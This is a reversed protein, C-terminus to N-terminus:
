ELLGETEEFGVDEDVESEEDLNSFKSFGLPYGNSYRSNYVPSNFDFPIEVFDEYEPYLTSIKQIAQGLTILGCSFLSIVTQTEIDKDDVFSPTDIDTITSIDWFIRNFLNMLNEIPRQNITLEKGYIKYLTNTKNSNMSETTDDILLRAKPIKFVALIKKDSKESLENLYSYNSESIQIYDVTLPINPSMSVLELTFVGSGKNEMKEELTDDLNEETVKGPPRIITIIGSILNGDALKQADLMDLSVSASIHNFASIWYPYDYFLSKRGGGFWLVYHLEEDTEPYDYGFLRSHNILKMYVTDVGNIQQVVYYYDRKEGNEDPKTNKKIYLTDAQIEYLEVPLGTNKDTIIECAGFGYSYYDTIANMLEDQNNLWFDKIDQLLSDNGKGDKTTITLDNYVTDKALTEICTKLLVNQYILNDCLSVNLYPKIHNGKNKDDVKITEKVELMEQVADKSINYQSNIKPLTINLNILEM